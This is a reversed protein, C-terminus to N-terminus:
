NFHLKMYQNKVVAMMVQLRGVVNLSEDFEKESVGTLGSVSFKVLGKM